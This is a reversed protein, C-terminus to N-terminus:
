IKVDEAEMEKNLLKIYKTVRRNANEKSGVDGLARLLNRSLGRLRTQDTSLKIVASHFGANETSLKEILPNQAEIEAVLRKIMWNAEAFPYITEKIKALDIM